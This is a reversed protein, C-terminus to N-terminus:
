IVRDNEITEFCMDCCSLLCMGFTASSMIIGPMMFPGLLVAMGAISTGFLWKLATTEVWWLYNYRTCLEITQTYVIFSIIMWAVSALFPILPVLFLLNKLCKKEYLCHYIIFAVILIIGLVGGIILAQSVNIGIPPTPLIYPKDNPMVCKSSICPSNCSVTPNKVGYVIMLIPIVPLASFVVSFGVLFCLDKQKSM